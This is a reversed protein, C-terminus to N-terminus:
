YHPRFEPLTRRGYRYTDSRRSTVHEVPKVLLPDVETLDDDIQAFPAFPRRQQQQMTIRLSMHHPVFDGWAQRLVKRDDDGVQATIAVATLRGCTIIVNAIGLPLHRLVHDAHHLGQAELLPKYGPM